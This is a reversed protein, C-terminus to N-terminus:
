HCNRDIEIEELSDIFEKTAPKYDNGQNEQTEAVLELNSNLEQIITNLININSREQNAGNNSQIFNVFQDM